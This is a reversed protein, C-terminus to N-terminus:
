KRRKAEQRSQEVDYWVMLVIFPLYLMAGWMEGACCLACGVILLLISVLYWMISKKNLNFVIVGRDIACM